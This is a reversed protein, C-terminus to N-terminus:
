LELKTFTKSVELVQSETIKNSVDRVFLHCREELLNILHREFQSRNKPVPQSFSRPEIFLFFDGGRVKQSEAIVERSADDM